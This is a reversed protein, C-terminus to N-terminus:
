SDAGQSSEVALRYRLKPSNRAAGNTEVEGASEMEKLIRQLQRPTMGLAQALDGAAKEGNRLLEAVDQTRDAKRSRKIRKAEIAQPHPMLTVRLIPGPETWQPLPYEREAAAVAKAYATGHKEVFGLKHLIGMIARNRVRSIGEELQEVSMGVPMQGPSDVVLRDNYISVNLHMGEASYDAHGIANHLIERLVEGDYHPIDRRKRGALTQATGTNRAIFREVEEIAELLALNPWEESDLVDGGKDTGPYRIARFYADPLFRNPEKGFLLLGARTPVLEDNQRVALEYTELKPDDIEVGVEGFAQKVKEIDLDGLGAGPVPLQDFGDRGRRERRIQELRGADTVPVANSGVREYVTLKDGEKLKLPEAGQFFQADVLVVEKEDHTAFSIRPRQPPDTSSYIANSIAQEVAQPDELGVVNRDDDVGVVIRGGATNGFAVFCKVIGKPASADVKFDVAAGERGQLLEEILTAM